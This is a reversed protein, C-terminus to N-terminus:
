RKRQLTYVSGLSKRDHFTGSSTLRRSALSFPMFLIPDLRSWCTASIRWTGTDNKEFAPYFSRVRRIPMGWRRGIDKVEAFSSQPECLRECDNESRGNALAYNHGARTPPRPRSYTAWCGDSKQHFFNGIPATLRPWFPPPRVGRLRRGSILRRAEHRCTKPHDM